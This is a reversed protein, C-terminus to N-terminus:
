DFAWVAVQFYIDLDMRHFVRWRNGGERSQMNSCSLFFMSLVAKRRRFKTKLCLVLVREGLLIFENKWM